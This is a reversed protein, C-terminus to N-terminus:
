IELQFRELLLALEEIARFGRPWWGLYGDDDNALAVMSSEVRGVYPVRVCLM